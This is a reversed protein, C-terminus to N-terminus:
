KLVELYYDNLKKRVEETSFKLGEERIEQSNFNNRNEIFQLMANKLSTVNDSKTQIGLKPDLDIAIGVPTSIVPTGTAWAEAIVCSFTESYSNLIFADANQYLLPLEEDEFPGEFSVHNELKLDKVLALQKSYDEDTGITLKFDSFEKKLEFCAQLIGEVNKFREDLGSIHLFQVKEEPKKDGPCFLDTNVVNPLLEIKKDYLGEVRQKLYKSVVLFLDTEQLTKDIIYKELKSLKDLEGSFISSQETIILPANFRKKAKIFQLGNPYLINGHILDVKKDIQDLGMQFAKKRRALKQVYGFKSKSKRFYVCIITLNGEETKEIKFKPLINSDAKTHVVTVKNDIAAVNAHRKIFNGEFPREKTPFWSSLFLIHKQAKEM